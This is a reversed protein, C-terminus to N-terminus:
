PAARSRSPRQGDPFIMFTGAATAVVADADDAAAGALRVSAQVFAVHTTIRTCAARCILDRGAEAQRLHDLRLDLTAIPRPPRLALFVAAGCTADVLSTLAGTHLVGTDPHGVLERRYPLRIVAEGPEALELELGLAANHPVNRTFAVNIVALREADDSREVM